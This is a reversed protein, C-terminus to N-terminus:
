SPNNNTKKKRAKSTFLDRFSNFVKKYSLGMGGKMISTGEANFNSTRYANIRFRGDDTVLYQAKFDGGINVSSVGKGTTNNRDVDVNSGFDVLMRDKFLNATIGFNFQNINSQTQSLSYTKYNMNLSINKLGTVESFVNTLGSSLANSILDSATAVGGREYSGTEIKEASKFEGLLLLVGAQSVLEKDDNKILMLKEYAMTGIAKNTPQNIDFKIEPASLNDKLTLNIYTDYKKKAEAIENQDDTLGQILPYLALTNPLKYTAKVDLQAALPDGNWRIQSGEDIIFTRPLVGRFNFLYKGETISYTGFMNMSNGLDLNLNINGNGKAVIEERTNQDLIIFVQVDPTAEVNMNIRFYNSSRKTKESFQDRGIQMFDIYDYTSADGSSSIPLHFTSGKLPRTNMDMSIDDLAGSVRATLSAPVYGYYLDNDWEMTNLCLFNDSQISLDFVPNEPHVLQISGKVKATYKEPRQDFLNFEPIRIEHKIFSLKVNDMSYRTGLYIVKLSADSLLLNGNIDPEDMPGTLNLEGSVKGHLDSVYDSIFDNLFAIDASQLSAKLQMRKTDFNLSGNIESTQDFRTVKTGPDLRMANRGIDYHVNAFVIGLTDDNVRISQSSYLLADATAASFLNNLEIKGNVRGYLRMGNLDIYNSIGSLDIEQLDISLDDSNRESSNILLRQAGSEVVVESITMNKGLILDDTSHLQWNDERLSFTSPLINVFLNNNLAAAKINLTADGVVENISQTIISLNATDGAMSGNIQFSPIMLEDDYFFNGCTANLDFQSYDGSGVIILDEWRFDKYGFRLINADLGFRQTNTNLYGSLVSGSIGHFDSAFTSLISDAQHIEVTYELEQNSMSTPLKIYQPLYHYVYLQIADPLGSLYFNGKIEADVVTSSLRLTKEKASQFSALVLSDIHTSKGKNELTIDKFSARGTFEDLTAGDFNLNAYGSGIVSEKTLGFKKLDFRIFRSTFQYVPRSGNLDVKGNFNLTLGPDKSIFIGDFKKKAVLGNITIDHYHSSDLDVRSVTADIQANLDELNFGSGDIKGKMSITGIRSQKILQGINFDDTEIHGSYSPIANRFNMNLDVIASGLTTSLNGKTYFQDVQGSYAGTYHITSLRNWDIGDTKTQPILANIDNGSTILEIDSVDFYTIGIDPLGTVTANGSFRTNRSELRIQKGELHDVTGDFQGDINVAIPYENLINAFYGIDLSSVRSNILNGKMNVEHIYDNFAHFNKYNMEYHGTLTSYNTHLTLADLSARVQSLTVDAHLDKVALGSREIAQLTEIHSFITDGVVRTNNLNINIGSIVLNKEDFENPLSIRDDHIYRFRSNSLELRALGLGFKDPNFPTGWDSSDDPSLDEPKNGDYERVLIDAGDILLKKLSIQKKELAIQETEAQLRGITVDLDEGRWGDDMFFRIHSGEIEKLDFQLGGPNKASVATDPVASNEARSPSSFANAIFDYNWVSDKDRHLRVFAHYLGASHIVPKTNHWYSSLLDSTKLRLKGIYALTDKHGDEIYVGQLDVANLFAIRVHEIEVRTHLKKSLYAAGKQALINQIKELSLMWIGLFLLLLVGTLFGTFIIM